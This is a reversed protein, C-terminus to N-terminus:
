VIDWLKAIMESPTCPLQLYRVEGGYKAEVNATVQSLFGADDFDRSTLVVGRPNVEEKAIHELLGYCDEPRFTDLVLVSQSTIRRAPIEDYGLGEVVHERDGFESAIAEVLVERTAGHSNIVLIATNIGSM